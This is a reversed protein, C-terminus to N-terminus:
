FSFYGVTKKKKKLQTQGVSCRGPQNVNGSNKRNVLHSTNIFIMDVDACCDNDGEICKDEIAAWTRLTVQCRANPGAAECSTKLCTNDLLIM